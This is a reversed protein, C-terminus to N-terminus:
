SRRQPVPLSSAHRSAKQAQRSIEDVEPQAEEQFQKATRGLILGHRVLAIACVILAVTSVLAVVFWVLIWTSM